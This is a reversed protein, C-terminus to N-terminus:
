DQRLVDMPDLRTARRASPLASLLGILVLGAAAAVYVTPEKSTVGFLLGQLLGAAWFAGLLGLTVGASTLLASQRLVMVLISTDSSGLARRIGFERRRRRVGYAIVGYLGLVTLFAAVGAFLVFLTRAFRGTALEADVIETMPQLDALPIEADMQALQRRIMAGLATLDGAARVVLNVEWDTWAYGESDFYIVEGPADRLSAYRANEAIGIVEFQVTDAGWPFARLQKGLASQDPWAREALARSVIVARKPDDTGFMRGDLLPIRMADFYTPTVLEYRALRLHEERVAGGHFGGDWRRGVLPLPWVVAAASVGPLARIREEFQRFFLDTPGPWNYRKGPLSISFTLVGEPDFGPEITELRSHSSVLLGACVVLMLSASIQAVVMAQRFRGRARGSTTRSASLVGAPRTRSGALAPALGLLLTCAVTTLATYSLVVKDIAVDAIRPVDAPAIHPLVRTGLVGILVGLGGGLAALVLSEALVHRMIRGRGSGLALRVAMEQQRDEARVLLLSTLNACVVLLVIFVAAMLLVLIPRARSVVHQHLPDATLEFGESRYSPLEERFGESLRDLDARAMEIDVDPRLRGLVRMLGAASGEGAWIDSNQWWNDPVKWVDIGRSVPGLHLVFPPLVGVITYVYGDLQVTRGVVDPDSGFDRRWSRDGLVATGMPDGPVFTRGLQARTGLMQFLNASAWGVQVQRPFETGTLNQRISAVAAMDEFVRTRERMKAFTGGAILVNQATEPSHSHVGALSNLRSGVHVLRDPERYDLPRLLVTNLVSFIATSLGIGLALTAVVTLAFAPSRALSRLAFRFERLGDSMRMHSTGHKREWRAARRARWAGRLLDVAIRATFALRAAGSAGELRARERRLFDVVEDAHDRRFDAPYLGILVRMWNM